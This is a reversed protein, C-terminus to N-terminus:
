RAPGLKKELRRFPECKRLRGLRVREALQVAHQSDTYQAGRKNFVKMLYTKPECIRAPKGNNVREPVHVSTGQIVAHVAAGDALFLTELEFVMCVLDVRSVDVKSVALHQRVQSCEAVCDEPGPDHNEWVAPHLDWAVIVRHCGGDLLLQVDDACNSLVTPKTSLTVPRELAHDPWFRRFLVEFVQADPGGKTCEVVLGYRM